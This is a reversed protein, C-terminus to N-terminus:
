ENEGGLEPKKPVTFSFTSGNKGDSEASIKGRNMVLFERSLLLGIGNGTEGMTGISKVDEGSQFLKTVKEKSMGVGSDIVSVKWEEELEDAHIHIQSNKHSFKLANSLLNRLVTVIMRDDCYVMAHSPIQIDFVISKSFANLEFLDICEYVINELRYYHPRFEEKGRQMKAWELLNELLSFVSETADVLAQTMPAISEDNKKVDDNLIKLLMKIGALPGRLDHSIISLFRDKTGNSAILERNIDALQKETKKQETVDHLVIVLGIKKRNTDRIQKASVEFIQENTTWTWKTVIRKESLNQIKQSFEPYRSFFQSYKVFRNQVKGESFLQDASLNWDVVREGGDLIVVAEALEDVIESRVLPVLDFMRYYGIAFFIFLVQFSLMVPTINIGELPRFGLYHCTSPIWLTVCSFFFFLYRNKESRLNTTFYARFLLFAVFVTWLASIGFSAFFGGTNIVQIWQIRNNITLIYTDLILTKFIPDLVVVGLTFVPQILILIWFNRTLLKQNGTFEIALLINGVSAISVGIYLISIFFRHLDADIYAFDIAYAGTWLLSGLVLILLYKVLNLRFSTLVLLGM